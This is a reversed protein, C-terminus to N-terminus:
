LFSTITFPIFTDLGDSSECIKTGAVASFSVKFADTESEAIYRFPQNALSWKIEEIKEEPIQSLFSDLLIWDFDFSACYEEDNRLVTAGISYCHENLKAVTDICADYFYHTVDIPLESKVYWMGYDEKYNFINPHTFSPPNLLEFADGWEAESGPMDIHLLMNRTLTDFIAIEKGNCLVFRKAQVDPHFAYSYAQEVHKKNVVNEKPAKAEIIFAPKGDVQILYDPIISIKHKRTGIKVFPHELRQSRVIKNKEDFASYGLLKLLPTIIEERVDDESFCFQLNDFDIGDFV